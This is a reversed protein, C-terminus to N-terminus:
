SRDGNGDQREPGLVETGDLYPKGVKVPAIVVYTLVGLAVVVGIVELGAEWSV